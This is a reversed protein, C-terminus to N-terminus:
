VVTSASLDGTQDPFAIESDGNAEAALRAMRIDLALKRTILEGFDATAGADDIRLLVQGKEVTQGERVLIEDILGGELSQMVQAKGSPIFRGSGRTVEDLMARDAVFLGVVFLFTIVLLM